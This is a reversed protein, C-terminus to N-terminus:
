RGAPPRRATTRCRGARVVVDRDQGHLDLGGAVGFGSRRGGERSSRGPPPELPPSPIAPPRRGSPPGPSAAPWAGSSSGTSRTSCTGTSGAGSRCRASTPRRSSSRASGPGTSRASAPVGALRRGAGEDRRAAAPARRAGRGRGALLRDRRRRLGRGPRPAGAAPRRRRDGPGDLRPDELPLRRLVLGRGRGGRRVRDFLAGAPADASSGSSTASRSTPRTSRRGARPRPGPPQRQDLPDRGRALRVEEMALRSPRRSASRSSPSWTAPDPRGRLGDRVEAGRHDPVRDLRAGAHGPQGLLGLAPADAGARRPDLAELGLIAAFREMMEKYTLVDPGGIDFSRGPPPRAAGPLRDPVGPRQRIAIPQTRNSVWRPCVM